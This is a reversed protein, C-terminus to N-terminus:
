NIDRLIKLLSGLETQKVVAFGQSNLFQLFNEPNNTNVDRYQAPLDAWPRMLPHTKNKLSLIPAYTWGESAKGRMWGEHQVKALQLCLTQYEDNDLTLDGVAQQLKQDQSPNTSISFQGSPSVERWADALRTLENPLLDRNLPIILETTEGKSRRVMLTNSPQGDKDISPISATIGDPSVRLVTQHWLRADAISIYQQSVLKVYRPINAQKQM